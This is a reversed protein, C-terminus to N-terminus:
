NVVLAHSRTLSRQPQHRGLARRVSAEQSKTAPCVLFDGSQHKLAIEYLVTETITEESM